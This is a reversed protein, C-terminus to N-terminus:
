GNSKEEKTEEIVEVFGDGALLQEGIEKKVPIVQGPYFALGVRPCIIPNPGTWQVKMAKEKHRM